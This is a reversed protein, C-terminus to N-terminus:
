PPHTNRRWQNRARTPTQFTEKLLDLHAGKITFLAGWFKVLYIYIEEPLTNDFSLPVEGNKYLARNEGHEGRSPEKCM